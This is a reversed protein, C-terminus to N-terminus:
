EKTVKVTYLGTSVKGTIVMLETGANGPDSASQPGNLNVCSTGPDNSCPLTVGVNYDNDTAVEGSFRTEGYAEQPFVVSIKNNDKTAYVCGSASEFAFYWPLM